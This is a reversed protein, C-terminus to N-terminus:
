GSWRSVWPGSEAREEGEREVGLEIGRKDMGGGLDGADM